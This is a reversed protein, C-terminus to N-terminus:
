DADIEEDYGFVVIESDVTDIYENEIYSDWLMDRILDELYDGVTPEWTTTWNPKLTMELRSDADWGTEMIQYVEKETVPAFDPIYRRVSDTLIQLVTETIELGYYEKYSCYNIAEIRM